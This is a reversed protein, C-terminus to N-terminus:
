IYKGLPMPKDAVKSLTTIFITMMIMSIQEPVINIRTSIAIKKIGYHMVHLKAISLAHLPMSQLGGDIIELRGLWRTRGCSYLVIPSTLLM